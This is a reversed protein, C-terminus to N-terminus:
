FKETTHPLFHNHAVMSLNLSLEDSCKNEASSFYLTYWTSATYGWVKCGGEPTSYLLM